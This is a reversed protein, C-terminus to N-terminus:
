IGSHSRMNLLKGAHNAVLYCIIQLSKGLAKPMVYPLLDIDKPYCKRWQDIVKNQDDFFRDDIDQLKPDFGLCGQNHKM